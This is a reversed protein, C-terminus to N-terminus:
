ARKRAGLIRLTADVALGPGGVLHKKWVVEPVAEAEPLVSWNPSATAKLWKFDDVQDFLNTEGKQKDTLYCAPAKAFRVRTCAEVIPRSVCHLYFVLNDCDHIRVQRTAVVVVSDRVNTVHVPGDVRGAVIVSGSVDKLTLSAFPPHADDESSSSGSSPQASMDVICRNLNTLTWASVARAATSPLTIHVGKHDSLALDRRTSPAPNSTTTGNNNSAHDRAGAAVPPSDSHNNATAPNLSRSDPKPTASSNLARQKFQFRPKPQYQAQAETIEERLAKVTDSYARHDYAPVSDAVDAVERSLRSIRSLIDEIAYMREGGVTAKSPLVELQQQIDEVSNRFRLYFSNNTDMTPM